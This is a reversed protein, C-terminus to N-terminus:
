TLRQKLWSAMAWALCVFMSGDCCGCDDVDLQIKSPRKLPGIAVIFVCEVDIHIVVDTASKDPRVFPDFSKLGGVSPVM